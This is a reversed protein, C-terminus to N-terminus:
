IYKIGTGSGHRRPARDIYVEIGNGDPDAFYIAESVHHDSAGQLQLRSQIIHLVLDALDSRNPLLFAIHFLGTTRPQRPNIVEPQELTLLTTKGDATISAKKDTQAFVQFGLVDRYFTLTRELNEVILDVQGIVPHPISKM